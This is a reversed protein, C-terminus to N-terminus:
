IGGGPRHIHVECWADTNSLEDLTRLGNRISIWVAVAAILAFVGVIILFTM